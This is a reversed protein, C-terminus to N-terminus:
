CVTNIVVCTVPTQFHTYDVPLHLNKYRWAIKLTDDCGDGACCPATNSCQRCGDSTEAGSAAPHSAQKSMTDDSREYSKM